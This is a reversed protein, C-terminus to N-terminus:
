RKRNLLYGTRRLINEESCQVRCLEEYKTILKEVVHDPDNEPFLKCYGSALRALEIERIAKNLPKKRCVTGDLDIVGAYDMAPECYINRLNLDGHAIGNQHLTSVASLINGSLFSFAQESDCHLYNCTNQEGTLARTILFDCIHWGSIRRIAAEVQPTAVGARSVAEAAFLCHIARGTRFRRRLQASVGPLKYMKVFFGDVIGAKIKSSDKFIKDCQGDQLQRCLGVARDAAADLPIEGSRVVGDWRCKDGGPVTFKQFCEPYETM